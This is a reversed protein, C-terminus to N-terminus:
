AREHKPGVGPVDPRIFSHSLRILRNQEDVSRFIRSHRAGVALLQIPKHSVFSGTEPEYRSRPMHPAIRMIRFRIYVMHDIKQPVGPIALRLRFAECM